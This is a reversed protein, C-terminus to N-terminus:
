IMSFLGQEVVLVSLKKLPGRELLQSVRQRGLWRSFWFQASASTNCALVNLLLGWGFGFAAGAVMHLLVAPVLAATLLLYAVVFAPGAWGQTRVGQLRAFAARPTLHPGALVRVAVLGGFAAVVWLLRWPSPPHRVPSEM